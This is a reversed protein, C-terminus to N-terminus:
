CNLRQFFNANLTASVAAARCNRKTTKTSICVHCRRNEESCHGRKEPSSKYWTQVRFRFNLTILCDRNSRGKLWSHLGFRVFVTNRFQGMEIELLPTVMWKLLVWTFKTCKHITSTVAAAIACEAEGCMELFWKFSGLPSYLWLIWQQTHTQSWTLMPDHRCIIRFKWHTRYKFATTGWHQGSVLWPTGQSKQM